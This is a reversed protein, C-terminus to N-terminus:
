VITLPSETGFNIIKQIRDFTLMHKVLETHGEYCSTALGNREFHGDEIEVDYGQKILELVVEITGDHFQEIFPTADYM